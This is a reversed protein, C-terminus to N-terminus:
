YLRNVLMEEECHACKYDGSNPFPPNIIADFIAGDLIARGLVVTSDFLNNDYCRTAERYLEMTEYFPEPYPWGEADKIDGLLKSWALQGESEM